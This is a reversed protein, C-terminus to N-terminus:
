SRSVENLRPKSTLPIPPPADGADANSALRPKRKPPPPPAKKFSVINDRVQIQSSTPAEVSSQATALFPANARYQGAKETLNYKTNLKNASKWGSAVQDGHRDSFNNATSVANRADSLSVSSPDSRFSQATKFAAQKEAITTGQSPAEAPASSRGLGSFRSQLENLQPSSPMGVSTVSPMRPPPGVTAPRSASATSNMPPAAVPQKGGIGFGPVSIGAAGLRSLSGQNLIGRHSSPGTTETQYTPTTNSVTAVPALSSNQRPPLRPPLSPKPKLGAVPSRGDAGDKRGPPPPLRSTSLGTTDARYPAPPPKTDEEEGYAAEKDVHTKARNPVSDGGHYYVHKPPPEFTSPDKLTALPRAVHDNTVENTSKKKGMWGAQLV